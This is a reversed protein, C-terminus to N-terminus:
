RGLARTAHARVASRDIKGPGRHWLADVVLLHRPAWPSGLTTAVRVRARGLLTQEDRSAGTATVVAVVVEGWEPDPVGVVCVEGIGDVGSLAAEVAAPAVNVGGTLVVDDARGLVTVRAARGPSADVTSVEVTGVDSTRFWRVGTADTTFAAATADDDGLYATALTPGTIELLGGDGVRVRVGDLPVGDYVCGGSTETMGYTTVVRVGRARADALLAPPTAAGGLLVADLTRLAALAAAGDPDGADAAELARHLQTPVLSAYRRPGPASGVLRALAGLDVRTGPPPAVLPTGALVSRVVVQLGAVHATPLALVWTGPGGLRAHTAHASATLADAGLAVGRPTGTSGSTAVVLATGAPVEGVVPADGAVVCPGGALAAALAARLAHPDSPARLTGGAPADPTTPRDPM